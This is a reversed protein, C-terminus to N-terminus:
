KIKSITKRAVIKDIEVDELSFDVAKRILEKVKKNDYDKKEAMPIHRILKGTGELLNHPDELLTGKNFGLNFHKTYIPIHCFADGLKLTPSFVTTIAHTHYLTENSDPYVSFIFERLGIFLEVLAADHFNLLYLLDDHIERTKTM